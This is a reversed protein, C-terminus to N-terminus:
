IDITKLELESRRFDQARVVAETTEALPGKAFVIKETETTIWRAPVRTCAAQIAKALVDSTVKGAKLHMDLQPMTSTSDRQETALVDDAGDVMWVIGGVVVVALGVVIIWVLPAKM